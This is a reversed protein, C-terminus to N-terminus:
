FTLNLKSDFSHTQQTESCHQSMSLNSDSTVHITANLSVDLNAQTVVNNDKAKSNSSSSWSESSKLRKLSRSPESKLQRKSSVGDSNDSSDPENETQVEEKKVGSHCKVKKLQLENLRRAEASPAQKASGLLNRHHKYIHISLRHTNFFISSCIPCKKKAANDKLQIKSSTSSSTLHKLNIVRVRLCSKEQHRLVSNGSTFELGCKECIHIKRNNVIRVTIMSESEVLRKSPKEAHKDEHHKFESKVQDLNISSANSNGRIRASMRIEPSKKQNRTKGNLTSSENSCTSSCSQSMIRTNRTLIKNSHVELTNVARKLPLMFDDELLDKATRKKRKVNKINSEKNLNLNNEDRILGSYENEIQSIMANLLSVCVTKNEETDSEHISQAENKNLIEDDSVNYVDEDEEDEKALIVAASDPNSIDNEDILNSSNISVELSEKFIFLLHNFVLM